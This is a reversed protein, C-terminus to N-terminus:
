KKGEMILTSLENHPNSVGIKIFNNAFRQILLEIFPSKMQGVISCFKNEINLNLGSYIGGNDLEIGNPIKNATGIDLEYIERLSIIVSGYGTIKDIFFYDSNKNEIIDDLIRKIDSSFFNHLDGYDANSEICDIKSKLDNFQSLQKPNLKKQSIIKEHIKEFGYTEVNGKSFGASSLLLLYNKILNIYVRKKVLPQLEKNKWVDFPIAPIYNYFRVKDKNAIDCRATIILGLAEDNPYSASYACNFITGQTFNKDNTVDIMDRLM